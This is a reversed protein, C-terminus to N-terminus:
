STSGHDGDDAVVRARSGVVSPRDGDDEVADSSTRCQAATEGVASVIRVERIAKLKALEDVVTPFRRAPEDVTVIGIARDGDRGLAFKAINM